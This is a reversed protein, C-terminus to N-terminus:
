FWHGYFASTKTQKFQNNKIGILLCYNIQILHSAKPGGM